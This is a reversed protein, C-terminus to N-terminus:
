QFINTLRRNEIASHHRLCLSQTPAVMVATPVPIQVDSKFKLYRYLVVTSAFFVSMLSLPLLCGM